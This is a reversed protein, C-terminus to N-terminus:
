FRVEYSAVDWLPFLHAFDDTRRETKAEMVHGLPVTEWYVWNLPFAIIHSIEHWARKAMIRAPMGRRLFMTRGHHFASPLDDRDHFRIAIGHHEAFQEYQDWCYFGLEWRLRKVM